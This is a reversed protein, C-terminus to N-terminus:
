IQGKCIELSYKTTFLQLSNQIKWKFITSKFCKAKYVYIYQYNFDCSTNSKSFYKKMIDQHPVWLINM